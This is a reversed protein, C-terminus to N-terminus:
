SMFIITEHYFLMIGFLWARHTVHVHQLYAEHHCFWGWWLWKRPSVCFSAQSFLAQSVCYINIGLWGQKAEQWREDTATSAALQQWQYQSQWRSRPERIEVKKDWTGKSEKWRNSNEKERPQSTEQHRQQNSHQECESSLWESPVTPWIKNESEKNAWSQNTKAQHMEYRFPNFGLHHNTQKNKNISTNHHKRNTNYIVSQKVLYM